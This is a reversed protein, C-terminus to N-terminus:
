RMVIQLNIRNKTKGLGGRHFVNTPDFIICNCEESLFQHMKSILMESTDCGDPIYRGVIVNKRLRKPFSRLVKRHSPSDLYNGISNGCAVIRELMDYSWKNSGPITTFPGTDEDVHNLYVLSKMVDFKPDMHLSILKTTTNTDKLTQYHHKDTPTAIQLSVHHLSFNKNTGHYKSISSFVKHKEFEQRLIDFLKSNQQRDYTVFRDYFHPKPDNDGIAELKRIDKELLDNISDISEKSLQLGSCGNKELNEYLKTSELEEREKLSTQKQFYTTASSIVRSKQEQLISIEKQNFNVSSKILSVLEEYTRCFLNLDLTEISRDLTEYYGNEDINNPFLSSGAEPYDCIDPLTIRM